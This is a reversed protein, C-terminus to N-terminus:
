VELSRAKHAGCGMIAVVLEAVTPFSGPHGNRFLKTDPEYHLKHEDSVSGNETVYSLYIDGKVDPYIMFTYPKQGHLRSAVDFFTGCENHYGVEKKFIELTTKASNSGAQAPAQTSIRIQSM